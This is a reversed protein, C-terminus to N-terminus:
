IFTVLGMRIVVMSRVKILLSVQWSYPLLGPVREMERLCVGAALYRFSKLPEDRTSRPGKDDLSVAFCAISRELAEESYDDNVKIICNIIFAAIEDYKEKMSTCLERQKKSVSGAKGLINGVFVERESVPRSPHESYHHMIDLMNNEYIDKIEMADNRLHQWLIGQSRSKVFEWVHQMVDPTDNAQMDLRQIDEFVQREDIARYLMGCTKQSEYYKINSVEDEEDMAEIPAYEAIGTKSFDVATSCLEALILCQQCQTGMVNQDAYVQHRNSIVGLQDTKMFTLFNDAMDQQTVSRGIDLPPLRPYDAPIVTKKLKMEPDFMVYYLDGDLDGGSLQSPLDRAGKQSFCICNYLRKLPSNSPVDVANALQVDGPHLAPARTIVVSSQVLTTRKGDELWCCYIEGEKLIGTEDMIGHLHYGKEVPIRAKHKLTRLEILVAMELVDRLFVDNRFDLNLYSCHEILYPLLVVDGVRKRELFTSANYTNATIARLRTVEKEQLKMFYEPEVGLDELIKIFQRNLYMSLPKYAGGCIELDNSISGDFKIMSERLRLHDGPLRTDLSIMGKAGQYRIQFCTPKVFKKNPLKEWIKHMLSESMTGVGDSFVRGNREVDPIREITVTRKDLTIANPTDSFAQGIRAACKAPSRIATFNGLDHIIHQADHYGEKNFFPAVFWCSQTRLSSHSSGLYEYKQSAISFGNKLINKFVGDFIEDNAVNSAYQIRGGDEDCFNVRVFNGHSGAYKRLIRNNSEAEPGELYFGAPTITVRHVLATNQSATGGFDEAYLAEQTSLKENKLLLEVIANKDFDEAKVNPGPFPLQHFLRRTAAVCIPLSSRKFMSTFTPLLDIVQRPSLFGNQALKQIQFTLPFPLTNNFSGLAAQLRTLGAIHSEIPQTVAVPHHIMSPIGRANKLSELKQEVDPSFGGIGKLTCRYVLSSGAIEKHEEDFAAIRSRKPPHNNGNRLNMTRFMNTIESFDEKPPDEFFHPPQHLTATIAPNHGDDTTLLEITDYRIVMRWGYDLILIMAREKFHVTFNGKWKKEEVFVLDEKVYNWNGCMISTCEFSTNATPPGHQLISNEIRQKEERELCRLLYSNAPFRSKECYIPMSLFILKPLSVLLNRQKNKPRREGYRRLFMEGDTATRFTIKGFDKTRATHCHFARIALADIKPKLFKRLDHEGAQAPVNTVHIEM